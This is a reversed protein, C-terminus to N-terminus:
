KKFKIFRLFKGVMFLIKTNNKIAIKKFIAKGGVTFSSILSSVIVAIITNNINLTTSLSISLVAGLGGSIIGCIDGVVDNCISSIKNSAKILSLAEKSGKIKKSSMAHFSAEDGTIASTGIADFMIGLAIVLFLIIVLIIENFSAVILNSATSFLISLVFTLIFITLFWHDKKQM